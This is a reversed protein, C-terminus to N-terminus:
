NLKAAQIRRTIEDNIYQMEDDSLDLDECNIVVSKSGALIASVAENIKQDIRM